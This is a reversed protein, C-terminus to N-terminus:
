CPRHFFLYYIDIDTQVNDPYITTVPILFSFVVKFKNISKHLYFGMQLRISVPRNLRKFPPNAIM